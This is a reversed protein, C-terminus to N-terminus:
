FGSFLSAQPTAYCCGSPPQLPPLQLRALSSLLLVGSCSAVTEPEWSGGGARVRSLSAVLPLSFPPPLLPATLSCAGRRRRASRGSLPAPLTASVTEAERGRSRVGRRGSRPPPRLSAVRAGAGPEPSSIYLLFLNRRAEAEAAAAM